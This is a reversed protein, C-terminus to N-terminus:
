QHSFSTPYHSLTPPSSLPTVAPWSQHAAIELFEGHQSPLYGSASPESPLLHGQPIFATPFLEPTPFPQMAAPSPLPPSGMTEVACSPLPPSSPLVSVTQLMHHTSPFSSDPSYMMGFYAEQSPLTPHIQTALDYVDPNSSCISEEEVELSEECNLDPTLHRRLEYRATPLRGQLFPPLFLMHHSCTSRLSWCQLQSPISIANNVPELM